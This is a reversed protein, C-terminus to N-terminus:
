KRIILKANISRNLLDHAVIYYVGNSLGNLYMSAYSIQNVEVSKVLMGTTAYIDIRTMPIQVSEDTNILKINVLDAAPNPYVSLKLDSENLGDYSIFKNHVANTELYDNYDFQIFAVNTILTEHKTNTKSKISFKVFGQSGLLNTTSDPLYINNIRWTIIQNNVSYQFNHSAGEFKITSPDLHDSLTDIIVVMSAFYNGVNQFRIKYTLRTDETIKAIGNPLSPWVTKDNPDVSGVIESLETYTNNQVDCDTENAEITVKIDAFKGLDAFLNVSDTIVISGNEFGALDNLYWIYSTTSDNVQTADWASDAAIAIIDEDIELTLTVNTATVSNTNEYNVIIQNLFGRRLATVGAYTVLDPANCSNTLGFNLGCSDINNLSIQHTTTCNNSWTGNLQVELDYDGDELYIQYDGDQNTTVYRPGNMIKIMKHPLGPENNDQICNGNADEYVRGCVLNGEPEIVTNCGGASLNTLIQRQGSPWNIIVSDVVTTNFLGFITKLSNQSGAGGGTQSSLERMQWTPTGNIDALVHIKAGIASKNSTTGELEFCIYSNCSGKGNEFVVDFANSRNGVFLDMDGDNDYDAWANPYSNGLSSSLPTSVMSFSGDNNNIYIISSYGLDNSVYLDLDGDNDVDVWSSGSSNYQNTTVYAENSRTFTGDGNNKYLFNAEESTNTVYLDLDGDNDYDGWSCGVSNGGDNVIDGTEITTFQGNGENRYLKNNFGNTNPVFADLDGDNDYDGWTSGISKMPDSTIDSNTIKTFTGDTNNHYLLNFKTEFYDTVFLDLHGDNDYDVWVANHCYGGYSNIESTPDYNFVGSGDNRFLMNTAGINNALFVDLDGDNDYDGWTSSVTNMAQETLIGANVSTFTGDGNNHYLVNGENPDYNSVFCDEYGDNDYDIWAVGWADTEEITLGTNLAEDFVISPDYALNITQLQEGCISQTNFSVEVHDGPAYSQNSVVNFKLRIRSNPLDHVGPLGYEYIYDEINEIVYTNNNLNSTPDTISQFPDTIPYSVESSNLVYDFSQNTSSLGIRISDLHGFKVSALEITIQITDNCQGGITQGSIRAQMGAPKPEVHLPYTTYQCQFNTFYDPYGACEYGNYIVIYDPACASYKATVYFTKSSSKNVTGIRYIDGDLQLTDGNSNLVHSITMDGSPNKIHIWSNGADTNSTSNTIKVPWTVTRSEGDQLPNISSIVLSTPNFKIRDDQNSTIWDTSGGGIFDAKNFKCTWTIDEFTNLAVDCTPALELYFIGTFGDDSLEIDGGNVKYLNEINYELTVPSNNNQPVNNYTETVISNTSKTRKQKFYSDIINYHAPIIVKVEKLHGWNRYEYPFLNGGEYNNCCDGISMRFSQKITKSCTTINYSNYSQNVFNYGILTHRGKRTDCFYRSSSNSFPATDNSLFFLNDIEIEDVDAGLNGSIKYQVQLSISDGTEFVYSNLSSCGNAILDSTVGNLRCVKNIGSNYHQFTIQDCSITQNQSADYIYITALIPTMLSGKEITSQAFLNQFSQGQSSMVLGNFHMLITDGFMSRNLKIQSSNLNGSADALGDLNNDPAGLSIRETYFEYFYIGECNGVPCHLDTTVEQNCIMNVESPTTCTTDPIYVIDLGITQSGSNLANDCNGTLWVTIDSKVINIAEPLFFVAELTSTNSNFSTSHAPWATNNETWTIDTANQSWSLGDPIHFKVTYNAGTSVPLNNEWSSIRYTFPLKQGDDIDSPSESFVFANLETPEEGTDTDSYTNNQCFDQFTSTYEWGMNGQGLCESINCQYIDWTIKVEDAPNIDFPLTYNVKGTPNNGLCSYAGTNITSFTTPTFAVLTGGNIQYYFSTEDLRSFISQDYTQNGSSKFIEIEVSSAAGQGSNLITLSAQSAEGFCPNMSNTTSFSLKPTKQTITIHAMANASTLINGDCGWDTTITSSVTTNSCGNLQYTETILVTEGFDFFNDGNGFASFDSGSLTILNGSNSITGISTSLLDIGVNNKIDNISIEGTRGYGANVITITRTEEQGSFSTIANPSVSTINLAPYLINYPSTLSSTQGQDDQYDVNNKFVVGLQQQAIALTNATLSVQFYISDNPAIASSSFIPATLDSIDFEMATGIINSISGSVYNIGIPLEYTVSPNNSSSASENKIKITFLQANDCVNIEPFVETSISIQGFSNFLPCLSLCFLFLKSMM